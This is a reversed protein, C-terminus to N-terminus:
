RIAEKFIYTQLKRDLYWLYVFNPNKPPYHMMLIPISIGEVKIVDEKILSFYTRTDIEHDNNTDFGRIEYHHKVFCEDDNLSDPVPSYEEHELYFPEFNTLDPMLDKRQINIGQSLGIGTNLLVFM